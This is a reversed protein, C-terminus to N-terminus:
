DDGGSNGPAPVAEKETDQSVGYHKNVVKQIKKKTSCFINVIEKFLEDDMDEVSNIGLNQTVDRQELTLDLKINAKM